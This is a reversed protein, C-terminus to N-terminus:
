GTITCYDDFDWDPCRSADISTLEAIFHISRGQGSTNVNMLSTCKVEVRHANNASANADCQTGFKYSTTGGDFSIDCQGVGNCLEAVTFTVAKTVKTFTATQGATLVGTIVIGSTAYESAQGLGPEANYLAM